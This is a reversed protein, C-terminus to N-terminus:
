DNELEIVVKEAEEELLQKARKRIAKAQDSNFAYDLSMQVSVKSTKFEKALDMKFKAAIHITNKKMCKIQTQM